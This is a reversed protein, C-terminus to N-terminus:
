PREQSPFGCPGDTVAEVRGMDRQRRGGCGRRGGQGAVSEQRSRQGERRAQQNRRGWGMDEMLPAWSFLALSFESSRGSTWHSMPLNQNFREVKSPTSKGEQLCSLTVRPPGLTRGRYESSTKGRFGARHETTVWGAWGAPETTGTIKGAAPRRAEPSEPTCPLFLKLSVSLTLFAPLRPFLLRESATASSLLPRLPRPAWPQLSQWVCM